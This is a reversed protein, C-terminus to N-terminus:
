LKESKKGYRERYRKLTACIASASVFGIFCSGFLWLGVVLYEKQLGHGSLIKLYDLEIGNKRFEIVLSLFSLSSFLGFLVWLTKGYSIFIKSLSQENNENMNAKSVIYEDLIKEGIYKMQSPLM